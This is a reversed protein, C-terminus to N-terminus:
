AEFMSILSRGYTRTMLLAAENDFNHRADHELVFLGNEVLHPKVLAPLKSLWDLDYPPDAFILDFQPTSAKNLWTLVDSRVFACSSEVDLASANEKTVRLVLPEAEVFVVRAAGRSLAEFGVAGTGAFLDLVKSGTISFRAQLVNFLAERVRDTTPRVDLGKPAKIVARKLKGGIIRM